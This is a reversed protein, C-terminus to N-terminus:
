KKHPKVARQTIEALRSSPNVSYLKRVTILAPRVSTRMRIGKIQPNAIAYISSGTKLKLIRQISGHRSVRALLRTLAM